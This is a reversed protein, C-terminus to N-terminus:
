RAWLLQSSFRHVLRIRSFASSVMWRALGELLQKSKSTSRCPFLSAGLSNTLLCLQGNMKGFRTVSHFVLRASAQDDKSAEETWSCGKCSLAETLSDNCMPCRSKGFVLWKKVCKRHFHHGCPLSAIDAEELDEHCIPCLQDPEVDSQSVSKLLGDVVKGKRHLAVSSNFVAKQQPTLETNILLDMKTKRGFEALMKQPDTLGNAELIVNAIEIRENPHQSNWQRVVESKGTDVVVLGPVGPYTALTLRYSNCGAPAELCVRHVTEPLTKVRRRNFGLSSLLCPMKAFGWHNLDSRVAKWHQNELSLRSGRFGSAELFDCCRWSKELLATWDLYSWSGKSREGGKVLPPFRRTKVGLYTVAGLDAACYWEFAWGDKRQAM